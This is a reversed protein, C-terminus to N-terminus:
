PLSHDWHDRRDGLDHLTVRLWALDNDVNSERGRTKPRQVDRRVVQAVRRKANALEVVGGVEAIRIRALVPDLGKLAGVDV